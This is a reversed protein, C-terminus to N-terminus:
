PQLTEPSKSGRFVECSRIQGAAAAAHVATWGSSDPAKLDGGLAALAELCEETGSLFCLLPEQKAFESPVGPACSITVDGHNDNDNATNM